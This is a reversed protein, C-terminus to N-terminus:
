NAYEAKAQQLIPIDADADKWLNLFDNYATRSKAADGSLAYARALGLHALPVLVDNRMSNRHDLVKQFETAAAGGPGSRLYARGRLYAPRLGAGLEYPSCPQLLEIAHAPNRRNLEIEAQITPLWCRQVMTSLPRDNNLKDALKQAQVADGARSLLLAVQLEVSRGPALALAESAVRHAQETNGLEAEERALGVGGSAASENNGNRRSSGAARKALERAKRMRGYYAETDSEQWLMREEMGPQGVAWRIQQQMGETDGRLFALWYMELHFYTYDLGHATADDLVRKAEELLDLYLYTGALNAYAIANNSDLRVAERFEAAAKDHQGLRLWAVGLNLHADVDRAYETSWLQFQQAAKELEETVVSYYTTSIYFKERETARERLAYARNLTDVALNMQGLNRYSIGLLNYAVAFNADLEVARKLSPIAETDGKQSQIKRAQSYAQLAELSATTAEELPKDFKQISTLSEGLKSRMTTTAQGLAQLVKSQGDAEVEVKGLSDGTQCNEAKLGIVYQGDFNAILGALVAKSGTRLCIEQAVEDAVRETPARSMLRLTEGVKKDSLINLFPSQEL